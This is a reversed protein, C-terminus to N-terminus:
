LQNERARGSSLCEQRVFDRLREADPGSLDLFQLGIGAPFDPKIKSGHANVWAVRGKCSIAAYDGPVQFELTMITGMPIIDATELFVGGSSLNVSFDSLIKSNELDYRIALRTPVRPSTRQPIALFSRATEVLNERNLPKSIVANCGANRCLAVEDPHESDSILIVPVARLEADNKIQRCCEAGDMIPMHLDMMVLDPIQHRMVKLAELGHGAIDIIVQERNFFSKELELFVRVDDVLLVRKRQGM